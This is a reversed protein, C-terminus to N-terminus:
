RPSTRRSPSAAGLGPVLPGRNSRAPVGAHSNARSALSPASRAAAIPAFAAPRVLHEGPEARARPRCTVVRTGDRTERRRSAKRSPVLRSERRPERPARRHRLGGRSRPRPSRRPARPDLRRERRERPLHPASPPPPPPPEEFRPESVFGGLVRRLPSFASGRRRPRPPSPALRPPPACTGAVLRLAAAFSSLRHHTSPLIAFSRVFARRRGCNWM